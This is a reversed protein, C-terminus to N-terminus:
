LEWLTRITDLHEMPTHWLDWSIVLGDAKRTAMIDGKIKELTSVNIDNIKLMTIGALLHNIGLNRGCEVQHAIVGSNIGKQRLAALNEPLSFGTANSLIDISEPENCGSRILWTALGLLEFPLGAPSFVRPYTMLKIWNCLGDLVQLDQGEMRTLAPSFCDLGLSLGFSDAQCKADAVIRTICRTRFDFFAELPSDPSIPKGLLSYVLHRASIKDSRTIHLYRRIPELDLSSEVALRVCNKCFCGLHSAPDDAPSPFRIRDLFIGQFIGRAAIGAMREELFDAVGKRNSCIFTFAPDNHYGPIPTGDPGIVAWETPLNNRADDILWPQWRYLRAGQRVTENAIDEEFQPPLNWGLLVMSIPLHAFAERLHLRAATPTIGFPLTELYQAAFIPLTM